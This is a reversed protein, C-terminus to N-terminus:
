KKKSVAKRKLEMIYPIKGSQLTPWLVLVVIIGLLMLTDRGFLLKGPLAVTVALLITALIIAYIRWNIKFNSRSM